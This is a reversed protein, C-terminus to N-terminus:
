QLLNDLCEEITNYKFKFGEKLLKEPIVYRSKLVLETETGIIYAGIKLMWETAPLGIPMKTKKRFLAMLGKNTIHKPAVINYVGKANENEIMWRIIKCFDEIHIWSFQQKGSGMTGGLGRRAMKVMVPLVGGSSGLM